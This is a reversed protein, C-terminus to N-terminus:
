CVGDAGFDQTWYPTGNTAFSEALGVGTYSPNLINAKHGPSNMWANMVTDVTTYGMAVNEGLSTWGLYGAAEVRNVMTSGNSGTHSMTNTAAMDDSHGQAASQLTACMHLAPAGVATRQANLDGLMTETWTPGNVIVAEAAGSPKPKPATACGVALPAMVLLVAGGLKRMAHTMPM